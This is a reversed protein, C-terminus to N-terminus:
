HDGFTRATRWLAFLSPRRAPRAGSLVREAFGIYARAIDAASPRRIAAAYTGYETRIKELLAPVEGIRDFLVGGSGVLEPHGGDRLAVAPLGVVLAECLSNSCPDKRSATVFVDNTRLIAALDHPSQPPLMRINAFGVPSNGVFSMEFRAPDLNRDLWTYDDFGKNPNASMSTAVLRLRDQPQGPPRPAFILPDATNTIVDVPGAPSFGLQANSERSYTSQFVTGDALLTNARAVLADRPDDMRNYLRIPGDVRHIFALKPLRRKLELAAPIAQYSNFITADADDPMDAYANERRLADRLTRLFQYGGAAPGEPIPFAIHIRPGTRTM